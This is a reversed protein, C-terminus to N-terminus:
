TKLFEELVYFHLYVSKVSEEFSVSYIEKGSLQPRKLLDHHRGGWWKWKKEELLIDSDQLVVNILINLMIIKLICTNTECHYNETKGIIAAWHM